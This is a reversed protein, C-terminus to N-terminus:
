KDRYGSKKLETEILSLYNLLVQYDSDAAQYITSAHGPWTEENEKERQLIAEIKKLRKKTKERKQLLEQIRDKDRLLAQDFLLISRNEPEWIEQAIRLATVEATKGRFRNGYQNIIKKCTTLDEVTATTIHPQYKDLVWRHGYRNIKDQDKKPLSALYKEDQYKERQEGERLPNFLKLAQLHYHYIEKSKEFNIMILGKEGIVVRTAKVEFPKIFQAFNKTAQIIKSKNRAPAAFLYLSLHPFHVKDDAVFDSKFRQGIELSAKVIQGYLPESIKFFVNLVM